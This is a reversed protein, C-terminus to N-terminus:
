RRWLWRVLRSEGGRPRRRRVRNKLRHPTLPVNMRLLMQFPEPLAMRLSRCAEVPLASLGPGDGLGFGLLGSYDFLDDLLLLSPVDVLELVV